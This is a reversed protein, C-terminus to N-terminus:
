QSGALAAGFRYTDWVSITVFPEGRWALYATLDAAQGPLLDFPEMQTDLEPGVPHPQYGYMVRVTQSDLRVPEDRPNFFRLRLSLIGSRTTVAIIQVNVPLIQPTPTLTPTATPVVPMDVGVVAGRSLEADAAYRALILTRASTPTAQDLAADGLLALVLGPSNQQFFRTDARNVQVKGEFRFRQAAGTNMQLTFTAGTSLRAFLAENEPSWPIGLVPRVLLGRLYSATDPNPDYNWEATQISRRQVVFVRPQAEEGLYVRLNVPYVASSDSDGARIIADQANLALPTPTMTFLPTPTTTSTGTGALATATSRRTTLGRLLLLAVLLTGIIGTILLAKSHMAPAVVPAHASATRDPSEGSAAADRVQRPVVIWSEGDPLLPVKHADTYYRVYATLANQEKADAGALGQTRLTKDWIARYYRQRETPVLDWLAEVAEPPLARLADISHYTFIDTTM